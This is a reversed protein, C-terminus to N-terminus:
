KWGRKHHRAKKGGGCSGNGKGTQGQQFNGGKGAKSKSSKGKSGKNKERVDPWGEWPAATSRRSTYGSKDSKAQLRKVQGTVADLRNQLERTDSDSGHVTPRGAAAQEMM